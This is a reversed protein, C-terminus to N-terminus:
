ITNQNLMKNEEWIVQPLIEPTQDGFFCVTIPTGLFEEHLINVPYPNETSLVTALPLDCLKAIAEKETWIRLFDSSCTITEQEKPSLFRAALRKAQEDNLEASELDIGISGCDSLVVAVKGRSHSISFDLESNEFFPKGSEARKLIQEQSQVGLKQCLESLLVLAVLSECASADNSRNCIAKIYDQNAPHSFLLKVAEALSEKNAQDPMKIYNLLIM